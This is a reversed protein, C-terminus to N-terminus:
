VFKGNFIGTFFALLRKVCLLKRIKIRTMIKYFARCTFVVSPFLVSDTLTEGDGHVANKRFKSILWEVKITNTRNCDHNTYTITKVFVRIVSQSFHFANVAKISDRLGYTISEVFSNHLACNTLNWISSGTNHFVYLKKVSVLWKIYM